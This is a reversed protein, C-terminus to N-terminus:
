SHFQLRGAHRALLEAERDLDDAYALMRVEGEPRLELAARRASAAQSRRLDARDQLSKLENLM